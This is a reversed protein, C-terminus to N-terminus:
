PVGPVYGSQQWLQIYKARGDPNAAVSLEHHNGSAVDNINFWIEYAAADPRASFFEWMGQVFRASDGDSHPGRDNSMGVEAFGTVKGHAVAEDAFADPGHAGLSDNLHTFTNWSADDVISQSVPPNCYIDAAWLDVYASGPYCSVHSHSGPASRRLWNWDILLGPITNKAMSVFYRFAAIYNAANPDSDDNPGPSTGNLEHGVRMFYPQRKPYSKLDNLVSRYNADFRGAACDKFAQTAVTKSVGYSAPIFDIVQSICIEEDYLNRYVSGKINISNVLDSFTKRNSKVNIIDVKRQRMNEFARVGSAGLLMQDSNDPVCVGSMWDLGSRAGPYAGHGIIHPKIQPSHGVGVDTKVWTQLAAGFTKPGSTTYVTNSEHGHTILANHDTNSAVDNAVINGDTDIGGAVNEDGVFVEMNNADVKWRKATPLNNNGGEVYKGGTYWTDGDLNGDYLSIVGIGRGGGSKLCQNQYVEGDVDRCQIKGPSISGQQDLFNDHISGFKGHRNRLSIPVSTSESAILRLHRMTCYNAKCEIGQQMTKLDKIISAFANFHLDTYFDHGKFCAWVVAGAIGTPTDLHEVYEWCWDIHDPAVDNDHNFRGVITLTPTKNINGGRDTYENSDIRVHSTAGYITNYSNANIWDDVSAVYTCANGYRAACCSRLWSGDHILVACNKLRLAYPLIAYTGTLHITCNTLEPWDAPDNSDSNGRLICWHGLSGRGNFTFTKGSANNSIVHSIDAQGNITGTLQASTLNIIDTSALNKLLPQFPWLPADPDIVPNVVSLLQRAETLAEQGISDVPKVMVLVASAPISSLLVFLNNPDEMELFTGATWTAAPDTSTKVIFGLLDLPAVYGPWLVRDSALSITTIPPPLPNGGGQGPGAITFANLGVFLM